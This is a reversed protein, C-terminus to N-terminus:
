EPVRAKRRFLKGRDNEILRMTLGLYLVVMMINRTLLILIGLASM